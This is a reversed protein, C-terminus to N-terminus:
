NDPSWFFEKRYKHEPVAPKKKKVTARAEHQRQVSAFLSDNIHRVNDELSTLQAPFVKDCFRILRKNSEMLQQLALNINDQYEHYKLNAYKLNAIAEALSQHKKRDRM